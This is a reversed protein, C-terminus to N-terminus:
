MPRISSSVRTRLHYKYHLVLWLGKWSSRATLSQWEDTTFFDEPQARPAVAM